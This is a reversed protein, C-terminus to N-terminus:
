SHSNCKTLLAQKLLLLRELEKENRVLRKLTKLPLEMLAIRRIKDQENPFTKALALTPVKKNFKLDFIKQYTM